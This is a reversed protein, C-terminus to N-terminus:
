IESNYFDFNCERLIKFDKILNKILDRFSEGAGYENMWDKVDYGSIGFHMFPLYESNALGYSYLEDVHYGQKKHGFYLMTVISFMIIFLLLFSHKYQKFFSIYKAM